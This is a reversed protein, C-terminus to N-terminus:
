RHDYLASILYILSMFNVIIEKKYIALITIVPLNSGPVM